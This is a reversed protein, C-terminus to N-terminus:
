KVWGKNEFDCNSFSPDITIYTKKIKDAIWKLFVQQQEYGKAMQQIIAYDDDLNAVHQPIVRTLTIMKYIVNAHDDRSEFPDSIEGM